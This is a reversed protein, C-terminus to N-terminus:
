GNHLYGMRYCLRRRGEVRGNSSEDAPQQQLRSRPRRRLRNLRRRRRHHRRAAAAVVVVGGRGLLSSRGRRACPSWSPM